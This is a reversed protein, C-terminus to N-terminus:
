GIASTNAATPTISVIGHNASFFLPLRQSRGVGLISDSAGSFEVRDGSDGEGVASSVLLASIVIINSGNGISSRVSYNSTNSSM